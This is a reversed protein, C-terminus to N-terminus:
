SLPSLFAKTPAGLREFSMKTVLWTGPDFSPSHCYAKVIPSFSSHGKVEPGPPPIPPSPPRHRQNETQSWCEPLNSVERPMDLWLFQNQLSPPFRECNRGSGVFSGDCPIGLVVHMADAACACSCGCRVMRGSRQTPIQFRLWFPLWM